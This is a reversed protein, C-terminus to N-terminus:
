RVVKFSVAKRLLWLSLPPLFRTMKALWWLVPNTHFEVTVTIDLNM